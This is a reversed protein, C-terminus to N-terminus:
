NLFGTAHLYNLCAVFLEILKWIGFPFVAYPLIWLFCQLSSPPEFLTIESM